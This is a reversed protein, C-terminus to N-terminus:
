IQNHCDETIISSVASSTRPSSSQNKGDYTVNEYHQKKNDESSPSLSLSRKAISVMRLPSYQPVNEPSKLPPYDIEGVKQKNVFVEPCEVQKSKTVEEGM